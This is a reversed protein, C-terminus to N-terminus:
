EVLWSPPPGIETLKGGDHEAAMKQFERAMRWFELATKRDAALRNRASGPVKSSKKTPRCPFRWPYVRVDFAM